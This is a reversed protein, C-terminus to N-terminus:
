CRRLQQSLSVNPFACLIKETFTVRESGGQWKVILLWLPDNKQIKRVSFTISDQSLCGIGLYQRVKVCTSFEGLDRGELFNTKFYLYTPKRWMVSMQASAQKSM